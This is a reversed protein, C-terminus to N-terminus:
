WGYARQRPRLQVRDHAPDGLVVDVQTVPGLRRARAPDHDVQRGADRDVPNAGQVAHV